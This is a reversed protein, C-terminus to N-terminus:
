GTHKQTATLGVFRVTHRWREFDEEHLTFRNLM